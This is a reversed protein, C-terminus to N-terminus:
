SRVAELTRREIPEAPQHGLSPDVADIEGDIAQLAHLAKFLNVTLEHLRADEVLRSALEALFGLIDKRASESLGRINGLVELAKAEGSKM